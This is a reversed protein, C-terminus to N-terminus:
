QGHLRCHMQGREGRRNERGACASARVDAVERGDGADHRRGESLCYVYQSGAVSGVM